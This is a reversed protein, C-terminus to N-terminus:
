FLVNVCEPKNNPLGVLSTVGADGAVSCFSGRPDALNVIARMKQTTQTTRAVVGVDLLFSEGERSILSADISRAPPDTPGLPNRLSLPLILGDKQWLKTM